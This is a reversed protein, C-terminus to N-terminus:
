ARVGPFIPQLMHWDQPHQRIQDAFFTCLTQTMAAVADQHSAGEPPLIPDSVILRIRGRVYHIAVGLLIADARLAVEAPGRPMTAEIAGTATPWVVPVGRRSFDRDALLCILRGQRCEEVLTATVDGARHGHVVFGLQERARRFLAFEPALLQEVVASVPMGVGCGWAGALDWSGMHPLAAVAGPSAAFGRLRQEHEPSILVQRNIRELSWRGLHLSEVANRAWSWVAQATLTRGPQEGTLAAVNAQWQRIPRPPAVTFVACAIAVAPWWVPWPLLAAFALAAQRARDLPRAAPEATSMM